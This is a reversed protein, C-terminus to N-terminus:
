PPLHIVVNEDEYKDCPGSCFSYNYEVQNKRVRIDTGQSEIVDLYEKLQIEENAKRNAPETNLLTRLTSKTGPLSAKSATFKIQKYEINNQKNTWIDKLGWRKIWLVSESVIFVSGYM